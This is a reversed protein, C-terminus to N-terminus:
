SFKSSVPLCYELSRCMTSILLWMVIKVISGISYWQLKIIDGFFKQILYLVDRSILNRVCVSLMQSGLKFRNLGSWKWVAADDSRNLALLLVKKEGFSKHFSFIIKKKIFFYFIFIWKNPLFFQAYLIYIYIYMRTIPSLVMQRGEAYM